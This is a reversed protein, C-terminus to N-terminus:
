IFVSTHAPCTVSLSFTITLYIGLGRRSDIGLVEITWGTAWRKCFLFAYLIKTRFEVQPVLVYTTTYCHLLKFTFYSAILQVIPTRNGARCFIKRKTVADLDVRLEISPPIAAPAHFKDGVEV